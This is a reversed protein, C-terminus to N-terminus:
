IRPNDSQRLRRPLILGLTIGRLIFWASLAFWLGHNGWGQTLWWILLFLGCSIAMMNRMDRSWTAGIFVGDLWFGASALLPLIMLWPLYDGAAIRVSDLTTMLDILAHAFVFYTVSYAVAFGLTWLGTIRIAERLSRPQGAGICKGVLAEAAHALGDMGFALFMIFNLLLANAALIVETQKAGQATFFALCSILMLTRIFINSNLQFMALFGRWQWLVSRPIPQHSRAPSRWWLWLGLLLGLYEAAVTAWAVGAVQWHLGLVFAIDLVINAVNTLLLLYLPSRSDQVGLFWGVLVMRLLVAPMGFLRIDFYERGMNEVRASGELWYFAFERLPYHLLYLLVSLSLALAAARIFLLKLAQKDGAGFAQAALGTTGMRLFGLGFFVYSFVLSGLAVAGIYEPGSLRGMVATDVVGVLPITLGSLIMPWALRWVERHSISSHM